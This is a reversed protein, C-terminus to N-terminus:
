ESLPMDYLHHVILEFKSTMRAKATKLHAYHLCDIRITDKKINSQLRPSSRYPIILNLESEIFPHLILGEEKPTRIYISPEVQPDAYPDCKSM